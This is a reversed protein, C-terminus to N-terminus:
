RAHRTHTHTHTYTDAQAVDCSNSTCRGPRAVGVESASARARPRTVFRSGRIARRLAVGCADRRKADCPAACRHAHAHRAPHADAWGDTATRMGDADAMAPQGPAPRPRPAVGRPPRPDGFQSCRAANDPINIEKCTCYSSVQVATLTNGFVATCYLTCPQQPISPISNFLTFREPNVSLFLLM